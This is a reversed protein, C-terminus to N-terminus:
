ADPTVSVDGLYPHNLAVILFVMLGVMMAVLGTLLAHLRYSVVVFGFSFGITILGGLLVAAWLVGPVGNSLSEIRQRRLEVLHNFADIAASHLVQETLSYIQTHLLRQQFDTFVLRETDNAMGRRQAPWSQQVIFTTYGRLERQLPRGVSDPYGSLDRYLVALTAAEQSAIGAATSYNQWTAVTLLGLTLGYLVTVGSFFWGVTGNDILTTLRSRHLRRHTLRLGLLSLGVALGMILVALLWSPMEYLWIMYRLTSDVSYLAAEWTSGLEM